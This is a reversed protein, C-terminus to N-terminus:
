TGECIRQAQNKWVFGFISEVPNQRHHISSLFVPTKRSKGGDPVTSFTRFGLLQSIWFHKEYIYVCFCEQKFRITGKELTDHIDARRAVYKLESLVTHIKM